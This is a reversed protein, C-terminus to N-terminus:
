DFKVWFQPINISGGNIQLLYEGPIVQSQEPYKLTIPCSEQIALSDPCSHTISVSDNDILDIKKISIPVTSQNTLLIDSSTPYREVTKKVLLSTPYLSASLRNAVSTKQGLLPITKSLLNSSFKFTGNYQGNYSNPEFIISIQCSQGKELVEACGGGIRFNPSITMADLKLPLHGSNTITIQYPLTAGERTTTGFNIIHPFIYVPMDQPLVTYGHAIKFATGYWLAGGVFIATLILSIGMAILNFM